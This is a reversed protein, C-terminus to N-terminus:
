HLPASSDAACLQCYLTVLAGLVQEPSWSLNFGYAQMVLRDNVEHAQKLAAPM